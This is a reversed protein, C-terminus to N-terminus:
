RWQTHAETRTRWRRESETARSGMIVAVRCRPQDVAVSSALANSPNVVEVLGLARGALAPPLRVCRRCETHAM